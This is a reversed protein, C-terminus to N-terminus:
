PCANCSSGSLYFGDKCVTAATASSCSSAGSPCATCTTAGSLLVYGSGCATAGNATCSSAGVGCAICNGNSLYYSL